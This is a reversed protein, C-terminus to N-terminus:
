EQTCFEKVATEYLNNGQSDIVVIVPFDKVELKRIAEAGLDDYCIVESKTICKSLLAGAGGIAAFYVAQNRIIADIVEKSRKGKGIMAKQGLDLLRPAYKDMRSATTPGASGIPRGKRAPSPGMYYITADKIDIPLNENRDLAEIMRKHAADRAVYITGSIYVYDGTHLDKTVESTIPTTIKKDM